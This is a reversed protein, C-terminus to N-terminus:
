ILRRTKNKYNIYEEAHQKELFVEELRIQIQIIFYSTLTCFFTVANPIILFLGLISLIMGLFIPNRSLSFIGKTILATKNKEDIGIRWSSNMQYQAIAIWLLSIHIFILGIIVLYENQLFLIPSIFFYWNDDIAFLSVALILLIIIAKMIFGIYDHANDKKGFTVPNIGTKAYTRYSPIVFSLLLYAVLYIPLYIKLVETM